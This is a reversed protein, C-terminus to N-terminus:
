EAVVSFLRNKSQGALSRVHLLYRGAAPTPVEIIGYFPQNTPMCMDGETVVDMLVVYVDDIKEVKPEDLQACSSNLYGQIRMEFTPQKSSIVEDVFANKM